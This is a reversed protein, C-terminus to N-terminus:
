DACLLHVWLRKSRYSKQFSWGRHERIKWCVPLSRIRLTVAVTNEFAWLMPKIEDECWGIFLNKRSRFRMNSFGPHYCLRLDGINKVSKVEKSPKIKQYGSPFAREWQTSVLCSKLSEKIVSFTDWLPNCLSLSILSNAKSQHYCFVHGWGM